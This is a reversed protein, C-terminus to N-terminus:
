SLVLARTILLVLISVVISFILRAFDEPTSLILVAGWILLWPYLIGVTSSLLIMGGIFLSIAYADRPLM